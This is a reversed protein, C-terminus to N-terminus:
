PHLARGYCAADEEQKCCCGLGRQASCGWPEKTCYTDCGIRSVNMDPVGFSVEREGGKEIVLAVTTEPAAPLGSPREEIELSM